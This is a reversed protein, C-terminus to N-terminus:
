TITHDRHFTFNQESTKSMEIVNEISEPWFTAKGVLVIITIASCINMSIKQEEPTSLSIKQYISSLLFTKYNFYYKLLILVSCM